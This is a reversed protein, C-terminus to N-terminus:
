NVIVLKQAAFGKNDFVKILYTGKSLNSANITNSQGILKEQLLMKGTIDYIAVM